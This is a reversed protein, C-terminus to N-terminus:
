APLNERVGNRTTYHLDIRGCTRKEKSYVMCQDIPHSYIHLSVARQDAEKPNEVRHVPLAPNVAVPNGPTIYEVDTEELECTGAAADEALVRYNQVRLRGIPVAMWCHQGEHNHIASIHGPEWCIAIMEYLPTRDILNRTYHQKDWLIYKELSEPAVPNRRVYDHIRAVDLFDKQKFRQLGRVFGDIAIMAGRGLIFIDRLM